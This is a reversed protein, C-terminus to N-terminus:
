AVEKLADLERAAVQRWHELDTPPRRGGYACRDAQEFLARVQGGRPGLRREVDAASIADPPVSWARALCAQLGERAAGFLAPADGALVAADMRRRAQSVVLRRQYRRFARRGRGRARASAAASALSAAAVLAAATWWFWPRRIAPVLVRPTADGIFRAAQPQAEVGDTPAGQSAISQGDPAAAVTVSFPRTRETVYRHRQPDFTVLTVAPIELAGSRRPVLTQTFLKTGETAGGGATFTARPPYTSLANTEAVGTTALRDFSGRGVVQVTLTIPEGVQFPGDSLRSTAHFTGVAGAYGPPAPQPPPAVTVRPAQDRLTVERQRVAGGLDQFFGQFPDNRMMQAFFPDSALPTDALLSAFPNQPQEDGSAPAPSSVPARYSLEVPLEVAPPSAGAQIATLAGTWTLEVYPLGDRRVDSQRPKDSLGSLTFGDSVLRPAGNLTVGTGALFDARITVPVAQGVVLGRAGGELQLRFTARAPAAAAVAPAALAALLAAGAMHITRNRRITM